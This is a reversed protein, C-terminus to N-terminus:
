KMGGGGGGEEKEGCLQSGNGGGAPDPRHQLTRQTCGPPAPHTPSHPLDHPQPSHEGVHAGGAHLALFSRTCLLLTHCRAFLYAVPRANLGYLTVVVAREFHKVVTLSFHPVNEPIQSM